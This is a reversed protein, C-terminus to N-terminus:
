VFLSVRHFHKGNPTLTSELSVNESSKRAYNNGTPSHLKRHVM